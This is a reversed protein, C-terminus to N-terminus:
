ILFKLEKFTNLCLEKNETFVNPMCFQPMFLGFMIILLLKM